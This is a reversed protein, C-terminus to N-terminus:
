ARRVTANPRRPLMCFADVEDGRRGVAYDLEADRMRRLVAAQERAHRHLIVEAHAPEDGLCYAWTPHLL